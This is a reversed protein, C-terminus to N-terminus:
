PMPPSTEFKATADSMSDGPAAHSIFIEAQPHFASTDDLSGARIGIMDERASPLGFLQSGCNPCFGRRIPQGSGGISEFVKADGVITVAHLPFFLTPAYASGSAKQCDRCHCNGEIVPAASSAYRVAGCLCGGSFAPITKRTM